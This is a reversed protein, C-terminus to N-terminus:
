RSRDTLKQHEESKAKPKTLVDVSDDSIVVERRAIADARFTDDFPRAFLWFEITMTQSQFLCVQRDGLDIACSCPPAMM